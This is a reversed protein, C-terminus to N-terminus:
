TKWRRSNMFAPMISSSIWRATPRPPKRSCSKSVAKNAVNAQVAIAKGGAGAIDAGIGKSAGTVVTVKNALENAM